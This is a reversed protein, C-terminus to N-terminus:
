ADRGIPKAAEFARTQVAHHGLRDGATILGVLADHQLHLVLAIAVAYNRAKAPVLLALACHDSRQQETEEVVLARQLVDAYARTEGLLLAALEGFIESRIALVREHIM